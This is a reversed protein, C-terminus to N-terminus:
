LSNKLFKLLTRMLLSSRTMVKLILDFVSSKSAEVDTVVDGHTADTEIKNQGSATGSQSTVPVSSPIRNLKTKLDSLDSKLESINKFIM